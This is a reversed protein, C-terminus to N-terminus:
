LLLSIKLWDHSEGVSILSLYPNQQLHTQSTCDWLQSGAVTNQLVGMISWVVYYRRNTSYNIVIAASSIWWQVEMEAPLYSM